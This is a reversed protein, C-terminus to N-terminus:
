KCLERIKDEQFGIISKKNNIIITPFSQHPNWKSFEKIVEDANKDEVLDVDIYFYEVGLDSLLRKTKMCWGCTSLTFMFIDNKNKKGAVKTAYSKISM